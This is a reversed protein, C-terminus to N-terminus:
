YLENNFFGSKIVIKELLINIVNKGKLEGSNINLNHLGFNNLNNFWHIAGEFQEKTLCHEIVLKGKEILKYKDIDYIIFDKNFQYKFNNVKLKNIRM